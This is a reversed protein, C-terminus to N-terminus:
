KNIQQMVWFLKDLSLWNLPVAFRMKTCPLESSVDYSATKIQQQQQQQNTIASGLRKVNSSNFYATSVRGHTRTYPLLFFRRLQNFNIAFLLISFKNRSQDVYFFGSQVVCVSACECLYVCTIGCLLYVIPSCLFLILRMWDCRIFQRYTATNAYQQVHTHTHANTIKSTSNNSNVVAILSFFYNIQRFLPNENYIHETRKYEHYVPSIIGYM